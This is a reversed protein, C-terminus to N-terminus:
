KRRAAAVGASAGGGSGRQLFTPKAKTDKCKPIHREATAPAFKRGCYPCPVLEPGVDPVSVVPIDKPDMGSKIAKTYMRHAKMAERLQESKAKWANSAADAAASAAVGAGAGAGGPRGRGGAGGSAGGRGGRGARGARGGMGLMGNDRMFKEAEETTRAAKSDFARRKEVFVKECVRAHKALARENFKRGCTPCEHLEGVGDEDEAEEPLAGPPLSYGGIPGRGARAGGVPIDDVNM